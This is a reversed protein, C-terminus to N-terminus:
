LKQAPFAAPHRVPAHVLGAPHSCSDPLTPAHMLGAPHSCSDRLIPAHVLGALHSLHRMACARTGCPPLVLGVPHACARTECPPLPTKTQILARHSTTVLSCHNPECTLCATLGILPTHRTATLCRNGPAESPEMPVVFCGQAGLRM